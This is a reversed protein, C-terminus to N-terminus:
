AEGNALQLLRAEGDRATKAIRQLLPQVQQSAMPVLATVETATRGLEAMATKLAAQREAIPTNFVTMKESQRVIGKEVVTEYMRALSLMEERHAAKSLAQTETRLDAALSALKTVRDKPTQLMALETNLTVVKQLLEHRPPEAKALPPKAPPLMTWVGVGVLVAAAATAMPRMPIRGLLQRLSISGTAAVAPVTRIVPGAAMLSDLFALKADESSPAPLAALDVALARAKALFRTCSACGDIHVLLEAPLENLEPLDLIRNQVADCKM